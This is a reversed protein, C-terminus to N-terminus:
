VFSRFCLGLPSMFADANQIKTGCFIDQIFNLLLHFIPVLDDASDLVPLVRLFFLSSTPVKIYTHAFSIFLSIVPTVWAFSFISSSPVPPFSHFCHFKVTYMNVHVYEIEWIPFHWPSQAIPLPFDEQVAPQFTSHHFNFYLMSQVGAFEYWIMVFKNFHM